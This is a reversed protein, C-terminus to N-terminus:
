VPNEPDIPWDKPQLHEYQGWGPQKTNINNGNKDVGHHGAYVVNAGTWSRKYLTQMDEGFQCQPYTKSVSAMAEDGLM